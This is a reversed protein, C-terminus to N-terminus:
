NVSMAFSYKIFYSWAIGTRWRVKLDEANPYNERRSGVKITTATELAGEGSDSGSRRHGNCCQYIKIIVVQMISCLNWRCLLQTDECRWASEVWAIATVCALKQDSPHAGLHSAKLNGMWGCQWKHHMKLDYKGYMEFPYGGSQSNVCKGFWDQSTFSSKVSGSQLRRSM